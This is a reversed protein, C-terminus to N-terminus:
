DRLKAAHREKLLIKEIKDWKEKEDKLIGAFLMIDPKTKKGLERMVVESFSEKGKKRRALTQYAEKSLAVLKAM